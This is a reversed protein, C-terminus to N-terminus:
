KDVGYQYKLIFECYHMAKRIDEAGNKNHHRTIYKIVNGECFGMGNATIYDIPQISMVKYHDGGHQENIPDITEVPISQEEETMPSKYDMYGYYDMYDTM